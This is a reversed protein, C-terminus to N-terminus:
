RRGDDWGIVIRLPMYMSLSFFLLELLTFITTYVQRGAEPSGFQLM